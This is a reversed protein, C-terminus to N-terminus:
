SNLKKSAELSVSVKDIKMKVGNEIELMYTDDNIEAIKGHIGGITVVKDGKKIGEIFNRQDKMKKTQPRIMFFYFVIGILILPLFQMVPNQNAGQAPPAMLLVNMLNMM